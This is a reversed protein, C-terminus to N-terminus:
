TKLGDVILSRLRRLYKTTAVLEPELCHQYGETDKTPLEDFFEGEANCYMVPMPTLQALRVIESLSKVNWRSRHKQHHTWPVKSSPYGAPEPRAYTRLDADPVSTRVIGGPKLVRHFERMLAIAEGLDLHEFFHESVILSFTGDDFPLRDGVQFFFERFECRAYLTALEERSYRPFNRRYMSALWLRIGGWWHGFAFQERIEGVWDIPPEGLHIWGPQCLISTAERSLREFRSAAIHLRQNM